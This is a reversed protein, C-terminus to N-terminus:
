STLRNKTEGRKDPSRKYSPRGKLTDKVVDMDHFPIRTDRISIFEEHGKGLILLTDNEKLLSIAKQIANRRNRIIEYNHYRLHETMNRYINEQDEFHPDDHTMIVHKASECAIESMKKRKSKDRDGTCGFVVYIDGTTIERAATLVKEMADPTHAYDVLILNNNYTIGETRGKPLTLSSVHEAIVSLSINELALIAISVMLNYINYRGILNTEFHCTRNFYSVDFCTHHQNAMYHNVKFDGGSFGFTVNTNQGLLFYNKYNDDYNIIAKGGPKIHRFLEQKALAYCEMTKHFDLHDQTLNTFVAYDFQLTEVRKNALGQSSVEMIVYECDLNRCQLLITYLDYIDPTTNNLSRIKTGIYFGITGIYACKKGLKNFIQHLLFASTTKGNTGTIGILKLKSIESYYHEKLYNVLYTRTNKVVITEVDYHGEECIIKKAGNAIAQEIYAHGDHDIGRLAIFTDGPEIKRSDIKIKM